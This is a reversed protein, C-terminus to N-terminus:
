RAYQRAAAQWWPALTGAPRLWVQRHLWPLSEADSLILLKERRQLKEPGEALLRERLRPVEPGGVGMEALVRAYVPNLRNERLLSAHLANVYPDLVAAAMGSDRPRPATEGAARREAMRGRLGALEFPPTSEEPTLFLGFERARGGWAARSTLVSLPISLLMGAMVPAFWWFTQHDLRWVAWGWALGILTHLGLRRASEVWGVGAAIRRQPGWSTDAGFLAAVVFQSHWLMLIPAHLASFATEAVAGLTANALGGFARLRPLDMALDVLALVKPLFLVAMCILFIFFAHQTGTLHLFPTFNRVMIDSLGTHQKYWLMWNFTLLFLLWLPSALYGMIGLALHVRSVGRLGRALIVMAHQLNGQCWRRERAANDIMTQPAEEYSGELDCAFWVLWNERLLLAAEVFDHSLIQGGFPKRGPLQPLDCCQMFAETRIIANHGWYNGFGQAWFNLGAIFVPAYLRNAFQQMRGFLSEAEVLAPVTQILGVQPHAEMLKALDVVTEGRMVSDADLVMFYRYRRGWSNLFDRVNGSKKAENNARRRYYIRGLADLDRILEFWRREEEIWQDPDTSDSLIFFDFHQLQGTKELSEFTARLGEYVRVIEENYIPFILATSIGELSKARYEAPRTIRTDGDILRVAFGYIGHMCGIATLLFLVVFLGMLCLGSTSWGSRWILDAFLMSVLGTLLLASSYFLFVRWGRRIHRAPYIAPGPSGSSSSTPAATM